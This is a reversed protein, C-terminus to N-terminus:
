FGSVYLRGDIDATAPANGYVGGSVDGFKVGAFGPLNDNNYGSSFGPGSGTDYEVGISTIVLGFVVDEEYSISGVETAGDDAPGFSLVMANLGEGGCGGNAASNALCSGSDDYFRAPDQYDSSDTQTDGDVYVNNLEMIGYMGKLVAWETDRNNFQLALRCGTDGTADSADCLSKENWLSHPTDTLANDFNLQLSFDLAIGSQGSISAMAQEGLPELAYGRLSLSLLILSITIKALM